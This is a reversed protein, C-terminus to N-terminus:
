GNQPIRGRASRVAREGIREASRRPLACVRPYGRMEYMLHLMSDANWLSGGALDAFGGGIEPKLGDGTALEGGAAMAHDEGEFEDDAARAAAVGRGGFGGRVM